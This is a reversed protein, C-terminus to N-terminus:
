PPLPPRAELDWLYQNLCTGIDHHLHSAHTHTTRQQRTGGQPQPIVRGIIPWPSLSKCAHQVIRKRIFAHHATDHLQRRGPSDREPRPTAARGTGSCSRSRPYLRLPQSDPRRRCVPELPATSLPGYSTCRRARRRGVGTCELLAPTTAATHPTASCPCPHSCLTSLSPSSWERRGSMM